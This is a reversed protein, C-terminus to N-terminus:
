EELAPRTFRDICGGLGLGAFWLIAAWYSDVRPVLDFNELFGWVTAISLMLGTAFLAHRTLQVRLYEDQEEALYRGAVFFVGIIPLAPLIAAAYASVGSPHSNRFFAVVGFLALAYGISLLLVSRNYRRRAEGLGCYM